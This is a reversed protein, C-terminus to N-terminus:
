FDPTQLHSIIDPDEFIKWIGKHRTKHLHWMSIDRCNLKFVPSIIGGAARKNNVIIKATRLAKHKWIFNFVIKEKEKKKFFQISLKIYIASFAYIEKPLISMKM